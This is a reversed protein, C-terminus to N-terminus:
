LVIIFVFKKKDISICILDIIFAVKKMHLLFIFCKYLDFEYNHYIIEYKASHFLLARNDAKSEIIWVKKAIDPDVWAKSQQFNRPPHLNGTM